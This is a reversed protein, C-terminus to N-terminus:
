DRKMNYEKSLIYFNQNSLTNEANIKNSSYAYYGITSKLPTSSGCVANPNLLPWWFQHKCDYNFRRLIAKLFWSKGGATCSQKPNKQSFYGV